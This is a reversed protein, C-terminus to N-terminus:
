PQPSATVVPTGAVPSAVPSVTIGLSKLQDTAQQAMYTSPDIAIAKQYEAIAEETRPPASVRYMEALYYHAQQNNPDQEILKKFQIEADSRHGGDALARAFDLRVGQDDPRMQLAKEYLPIAETLRGTNGLLNALLTLAYYDDPNEAVKTQQEAIVDKNPDTYAQQTSDDNSSLQDTAIAVVGALILSCVVLSSIILFVIQTRSARSLPSSGKGPSAPPSPQRSPTPRPRSAAPRTQPAAPKGKRDQNPM